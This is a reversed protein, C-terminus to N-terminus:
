HESHQLSCQFQENDDPSLCNSRGSRSVWCLASQVRREAPGSRPIAEIERGKPRGPKYSVDTPRTQTM